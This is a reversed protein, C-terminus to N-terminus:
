YVDLDKDYSEVICNKWSFVNAADQFLGKAGLLRTKGDEDIKKNM